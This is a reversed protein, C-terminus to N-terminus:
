TSFCTLIIMTMIVECLCPHFFPQFKNIFDSFTHITDVTLCKTFAKKETEPSPAAWLYKLFLSTFTFELIYRDYSASYSRCIYMIAQPRVCQESSTCLSRHIFVIGSSTCQVTCLSRCVFFQYISLIVHPNHIYAIGSSTYFAQLHVSHGVFTCLSRCIYLIVQLHGCHSLSSWCSSSWSPAAPWSRWIGRSVSLYIHVTTQGAPSSIM